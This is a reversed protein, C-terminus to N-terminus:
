PAAALLALIAARSGPPANADTGALSAANIGNVQVCMQACVASVRGLLYKALM